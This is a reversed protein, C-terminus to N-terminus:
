DFHLQKAIGNLRDKERLAELDHRRLKESHNNNPATFHQNADSVLQKLVVLQAEIEEPVCHVVVCSEEIWAERWEVSGPDPLLRHFYEEWDKSVASSLNLYMLYYGAKTESRKSRATDLGVIKLDIFIEDM